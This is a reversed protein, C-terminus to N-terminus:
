AVFSLLATAANIVVALRVARGLPLGTVFRFAAAEVVTVGVEVALWPAGLAGHATWALPHTVLNALPVDLLLRSRARDILVALLTEVAITAALAVLWTSALNV